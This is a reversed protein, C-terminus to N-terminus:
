KGQSTHTDLSTRTRQEQPKFGYRWAYEEFSRPTERSTHTIGLKDYLREIEEMTVKQTNEQTNSGMRNVGEVRYEYDEYM